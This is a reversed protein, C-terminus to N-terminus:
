TPSCQALRAKPEYGTFAWIVSRGLHGKKHIPSPAKPQSLKPMELHHGITDGHYIENRAVVQCYHQGIKRNSPCRQSQTPLGYNCLGQGPTQKHDAFKGRVSRFDQYADM